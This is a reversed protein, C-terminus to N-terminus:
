VTFFVFLSTFGWRVSHSSVQALQESCVSNTNSCALLGVCKVVTLSHALSGFPSTEVFVFPLDMFVNRTDNVM